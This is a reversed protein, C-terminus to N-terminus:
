RHWRRTYGKLPPPSAGGLGPHEAEERAPEPYVTIAISEKVNGYADIEQCYECCGGEPSEAEPGPMVRYGRKAVEVKAQEVLEQTTDGTLEADIDAIRLAYSDGAEVITIRMPSVEEDYIPTAQDQSVSLGYGHYRARMHGTPNIGTIDVVTGAPLRREHGEPSHGIRDEVLRARMM